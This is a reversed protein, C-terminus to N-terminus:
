ALLKSKWELNRNQKLYVFVNRTAREAHSFDGRSSFENVLVSVALPFNERM